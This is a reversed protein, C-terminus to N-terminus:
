STQYFAMKWAGDERIDNVRGSLVKYVRIVLLFVRALAACYSNSRIEKVSLLM